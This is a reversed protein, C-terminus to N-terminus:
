PAPTPTPPVVPPEETVSGPAPPLSIAGGPRKVRGRHSRYWSQLANYTPYKKGTTTLLATNFFASPSRAPPAVLLYQLQSRVRGNALAISYAQKFWKVRLSKKVARHGSSFYGFETLYLPIRGGGNQRLRGTRSIKDLAKTLRSLTGMTVDDPNRGEFTPAHNFDYPHHAYGDTKLSPCRGTRKYKANVCTLKRLFTLPSQALGPRAYPSTEAILVKARPDAGKIAAYGRTYLNRYLSAQSAVPGLWTKWNPENWISYRDVRGKFHEAAATAFKGYESASPKFGSVKKRDGTAWRPAPGTLSAHVRIGHEAAEDITRDYIAFNYILGAPKSRANYQAKSMTYAWLVNVRIRTTGLARLHDYAKDTNKFYGKSVLVADDQVALEMGRGARAEGALAATVAAAVVLAILARTATRPTHVLTPTV